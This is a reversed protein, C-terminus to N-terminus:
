QKVLLMPALVELDNNAIKNEQPLYVLIQSLVKDTTSAIINGSVADSTKKFLYIFRGIIEYTLYSTVYSPIAPHSYNYICTNDSNFIYTYEYGDQGQTGDGRDYTYSIGWKWTGILMDKTLVTGATKAYEAVPVTLIQSKGILTGDATVSIYFPLKNWDANKFTNENGVSLSLIGFDNTTATQIETYVTEDEANTIAINVNVTKNAQPEGTATNLLSVQYGIQARLQSPMLCALTFLTSLIFTKM